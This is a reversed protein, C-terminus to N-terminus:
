VAVRWSKSNNIIHFVCINVYIIRLVAWIRWEEMGELHSFFV